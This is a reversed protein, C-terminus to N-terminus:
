GVQPEMGAVLAERCWFLDFRFSPSTVCKVKGRGVGELSSLTQTVSWYSHLVYSVHVVTITQNLSTPSPAKTDAVNIPRRAAWCVYITTSAVAAFHHGCARLVFARSLRTPWALASLGLHWKGSFGLFAAFSVSTLGSIPFLQRHCRESKDSSSLLFQIGVFVLRTSNPVPATGVKDGDTTPSGALYFNDFLITPKV